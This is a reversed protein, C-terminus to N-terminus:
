DREVHNGFAEDISIPAIDPDRDLCNQVVPLLAQQVALEYTEDAGTDAADDDFKSVRIEFPESISMVTHKGDHHYRFEFVGQTWLKDGSFVVEGSVMDIDSGDNTPVKHEQIGM